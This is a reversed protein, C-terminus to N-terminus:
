SRHDVARLADWFDCFVLSIAIPTSAMIMTQSLDHGSPRMAAIAIDMLLLISSYLMFKTFHALYRQARDGLNTRAYSLEFAGIIGAAMLFGMLSIVSEQAQLPMGAMHVARLPRYLGLFLLIILCRKVALEIMM